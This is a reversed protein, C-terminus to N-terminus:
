LQKDFAFYSFRRRHCLFRLVFVEKASIAVLNSFPRCSFTLFFERLCMVHRGSRNVNSEHSHCLEWLLRGPPSFFTKRPSSSPAIWSMHPPQLSPPRLEKVTQSLTGVTQSPAPPLSRTPRGWEWEPPRRFSKPHPYSFYCPPSSVSARWHYYSCQRFHTFIAPPWISLLYFYLIDCSYSNKQSKGFIIRVCRRFTFVVWIPYCLDVEEGLSSTLSEGSGDKQCCETFVVNKM